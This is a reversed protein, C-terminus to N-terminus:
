EGRSQLSKRFGSRFASLADESSVDLALKRAELQSNARVIREGLDRRSSLTSEVGGDGNIFEFIFGSSALFENNNGVREIGEDRVMFAAQLSTGFSPSQPKAEWGKSTLFDHVAKEFKRCVQQSDSSKCGFELAIGEGLFSAVDEAVQAGAKARERWSSSAGLVEAVAVQSSLDELAQGIQANVQLVGIVDRASRASTFAGALRSIRDDAKALRDEVVKLWAEREVEVQIYQTRTEEDRFSEVVRVESLQVDSEVQISQVQLSTTRRSTGMSSSAVFDRHKSEVRSQVIQGLKSKANNLARTRDREVNETVPSLGVARMQGQVGARDQSRTWGPSPGDDFYYNVGSCSLPSVLVSMIVAHSLWKM